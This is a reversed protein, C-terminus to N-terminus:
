ITHDAVLLFDTRVLTVAGGLTLAFDAAKDGDLDGTVVTTGDVLAFHVEHGAGSFARQGVFKLAGDAAFASFDILDHEAQHFDTIRDAQRAGAALDGPAFVFRDAGAGGTLTDRGGGGILVDDGGLGRLVNAAVTGVIANNLANGTGRAAGGTLTLDELAAGLTFTIAAFVADHGGDVAEVLRDGRDDVRYVDDGVGGSMRDAGAGGDLVDDGGNAVLVDNGALGSLQDGFTGGTIHNAQANGTLSAARFISGELNEFGDALTFAVDDTVILDVGADRVREVLMDTAYVNRYTDSGAGGTLVDHQGSRILVDDGAGGVLKNDGWSGDLVDNGDGGYITDDGIGATLHDNGINGFISVGGNTGGYLVSGWADQTGTFALLEVNSINCITGSCFVKDYGGDQALEMVYGQELYCIDDGAGGDLGDSGTGGVLTDNGGGGALTDNGDRGEIMNGHENGVISDGGASGICTDIWTGPAIVVNGFLGAMSSVAGPNLDVTAGKDAAYGSLDLTNGVARSYLTVIPAPNRAFDFVAALPGTITTNFGFTQASTFSGSTPAGYLAQAALIDATMASHASVREGGAQDYGWNSASAFPTAGYRLDYDAWSFYSMTTFLATDYVSFQNSGAYDGEDYGGGHGLGIAHGIEHVATAFGYGGETALSGSLDFGPVGTDISIVSPGSHQGLTAGSGRAIPSTTTAAEDHGRTLLIDASSSSGARVFGINAVSSWVALAREFTAQETATFGSAVDFAYSATAGTGATPAGYKFATTGAYASWFSNATIRGSADIGAIYAVEDALTPGAPAALPAPSTGRQPLDLFPRDGDVVRTWKGLMQRGGGESGGGWTM